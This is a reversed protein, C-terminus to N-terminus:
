HAACTVEVTDHYRVTVTQTDFVGDKTFFEVTAHKETQTTHGFPVLVSGDLEAMQKNIQVSVGPKACHAVVYGPLFGLEILQTKAASAATVTLSAEECCPNRATVVIPADAVQVEVRGGDYARAAGGGIAVESEPPSVM